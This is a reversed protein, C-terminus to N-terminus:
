PVPLPITKTQVSIYNVSKAAAPAYPTGVIVPNQATRIAEIFKKPFGAAALEKLVQATVQYATLQEVTDTWWPSDFFM